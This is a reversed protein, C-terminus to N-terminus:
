TQEVNLEKNTHPMHTHLHFLYMKTSTPQNHTPPHHHTTDKCLTFACYPTVIQIDLIGNKM